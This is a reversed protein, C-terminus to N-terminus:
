LLLLGLGASTEAFSFAAWLLIFCQMVQLIPFMVPFIISSSLPTVPVNIYCSLYLFFWFFEVELWLKDSVSSWMQSREFFFFFLLVQCKFRDFCDARYWKQGAAHQIVSLWQLIFWAEAVSFVVQFIESQLCLRVPAHRFILPACVTDNHHFMQKFVM